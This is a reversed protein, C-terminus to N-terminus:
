YLARTTPLLRFLVYRISHSEPRVAVTLLAFRLACRVKAVAPKSTIRLGVRRCSNRWIIFRTMGQASILFGM